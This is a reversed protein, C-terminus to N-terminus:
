TLKVNFTETLCIVAFVSICQVIFYHLLKGEERRRDSRGPGSDGAGAGGDAGCSVEHNM